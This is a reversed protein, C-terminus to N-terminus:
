SNQTPIETFDREERYLLPSSSLLDIAVAVCKPHCVSCNLDFAYDVEIKNKEIKIKLIVTSKSCHQLQLQQQLPLHLLPVINGCIILVISWQCVMFAEAVSLNVLMAGNSLQLTLSMSIIMTHPDM